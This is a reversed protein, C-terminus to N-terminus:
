GARAAAEHMNRGLRGAIETQHRGGIETTDVVRRWPRGTQPPGAEHGARRPSVTTTLCRHPWDALEIVVGGVLFATARQWGGRLGCIGRCAWPVVPVRRGESTVNARCLM